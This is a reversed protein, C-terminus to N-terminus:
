FFRQKQQYMVIDNGGYIVQLYIEIRRFNRILNLFEFNGRNRDEVEVQKVYINKNKGIQWEEKKVEEWNFFVEDVEQEM